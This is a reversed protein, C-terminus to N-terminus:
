EWGGVPLLAGRVGLMEKKSGAGAMCNTRRCSLGRSIGLYALLQEVQVKKLSFDAEILLGM